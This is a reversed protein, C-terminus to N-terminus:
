QLLTATLQIQFTHKTTNDDASFIVTPKGTSVLTTGGFSTNRWVAPTDTPQDPILSSLNIDLYLQLKGGVDKLERCTIDVGVRQTSKQAGVTGPVPTTIQSGSRVTSFLKGSSGTVMYNRSNLVKGGDLEKVVFDLKYFHEPEQPTQGWAYVAFILSLLLVRKM